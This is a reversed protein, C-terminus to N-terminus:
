RVKQVLEEVTSLSALHLTTGALGVKAAGGAIAWRVAESIPLGQVLGYLLGAKFIDGAGTSDVVAVSPPYCLIRKGSKLLVTVPQSADTIIVDCNGQKQLMKAFEIPDSDPQKVRLLAASIVIIDVFELLPHDVSYIDNVLVPVHHTCALRAADLRPALPGSMDLNLWKIDTLMDSRLPTTIIDDLWHMIFTREGDPTVLCQCRPTQQNQHYVIHQTDLYPYLAFQDRVLQGYRDDGLEHGVLKVPTGWHALWVATNAAAGGINDFENKVYASRDTSPLVSVALYSDLDIEGYCLVSASQM